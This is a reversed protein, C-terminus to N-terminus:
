VRVRVCVVIGSYGQVLAVPQQLSVATGNDGNDGNDGSGSGIWM